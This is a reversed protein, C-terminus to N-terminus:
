TQMVILVVLAIICILLLLLFIYYKSNTGLAEDRQIYELDLINPNYLLNETTSSIQETLFEKDAALQINLLIREDYLSTFTDDNNITNIKAIIQDNITALQTNLDDLQNLYYIQKNIIVKESLTWDVVQGTNNIQCGKTASNYAAASCKLEECKAQCAEVTAITGSYSPTGGSIKKKSLVEYVGLGSLSNNAAIYKELIVNYNDTLTRIEDISAFDVAM